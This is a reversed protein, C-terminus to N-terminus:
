AYYIIMIMCLLYDHMIFLIIKDHMIFLGDVIIM